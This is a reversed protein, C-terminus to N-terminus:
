KLLAYLVPWLFFLGLMRALQVWGFLEIVAGVVSKIGPFPSFDLTEGSESLWNGIFVMVLPISIGVLRLATSTPPSIRIVSIFPYVLVSSSNPLFSGIVCLFWLVLAARQRRGVNALIINLSTERMHVIAMLRGVASNVRRRSKM